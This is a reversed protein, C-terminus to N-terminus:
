RSSAIMPRPPLSFISSSFIHNLVQLVLHSSFNLNYLNEYMTIVYLRVAQVCFFNDRFTTSHGPM